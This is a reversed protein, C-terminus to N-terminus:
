LAVRRQEEVGLSIQIDLSNSIQEFATVMSMNENGFSLPFTLSKRLTPLAPNPISSRVTSHVDISLLVRDLFAGELSPSLYQRRSIRVPLTPLVPLSLSTAQGVFPVAIVIPITEGLFFELLRLDKMLEYDTSWPYGKEDREAFVAGPIKGSNQRNRGIEVSDNRQIPHKKRKKNRM